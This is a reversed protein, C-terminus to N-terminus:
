GQSYEKVAYWPSDGPNREKLHALHTILLTVSRGELRSWQLVNGQIRRLTNLNDTAVCIRGGAALANEWKHELSPKDRTGSEVELYFTEEDKRLVLDPLYFRNADVELRLPQRDVRYGLKEFLEAAKLIVALHRDSKHAKLLEERLPTKPAEGAMQAYLWTGKASLTYCNPPRGELSAGAEHELLGAQVCDQLARYVTRLSLEHQRAFAEALDSAMSLGSEGIFSVLARDREWLRNGAKWDALWTQYADNDKPSAEGSTSTDAPKVQVGPRSRRENELTRELAHIQSAVKEAQRQALDARNRQAEVEQHLETITRSAEALRSVTDSAALLKLTKFRGRLLAVLEEPPIQSPDQSAEQRKLLEAGCFESTLALLTNHAAQALQQAQSLMSRTAELSDSMRRLSMLELDDHLRITM